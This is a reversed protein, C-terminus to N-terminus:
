PDFLQRRKHNCANHAVHLSDLFNYLNRSFRKTGLIKSKKYIHLDFAILSAIIRQKICDSPLVSVTVKKHVKQNDLGVCVAINRIIKRSVRQQNSGALILQIHNLQKQFVIHVYVELICIAAICQM